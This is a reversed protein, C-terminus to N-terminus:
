FPSSYGPKKKTRKVSRPKKRRNIQQAIKTIKGTRNIYIESLVYDMMEYGDLLDERNIKSSHSGANGLWKVAMMLNGLGSNKKQFLEVRKHLNLSVRKGNKGITTKRIRQHDLLSELGTRVKNACADVDLWFLQFSIKLEDRVKQPTAEPIQIIPPPPFICSVYYDHDIGFIHENGDWGSYSNVGYTGCVV